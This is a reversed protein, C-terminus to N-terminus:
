GGVYSVRANRRQISQLARPLLEMLREELRDGAADVEPASAGNINIPITITITDGGTSISSSVSQPDGVQPSNVIEPLATGQGLLSSIPAIADKAFSMIAEIPQAQAITPLVGSAQTEVPTAVKPAITPTLTAAKSTDAAIASVPMVASRMTSLIPRADMGAAMNGFIAQGSHGLGRLPSRSWKPESGPLVSRLASAVQGVAAMAAGMMSMIGSILNQILAAGASFMQGAIGMVSAVMASGASQIAGVAQGAGGQIAGVVGSIGGQAAAVISAWIGSFFGVLGSWAAQIGAIAAMMGAQLMMGLNMVAMQIQMFATTFMLSLNMLGAQLGMWLNTFITSLFTAIPAIAAIIGSFIGTFLGSLGAFTSMIANRITLFAIKINLGMNVFFMQISTIWSSITAGVADFMAGINQPLHVVAGVAAAAMQGLSQGLSRAGGAAEQSQGFFSSLWSGIMQFTTAIQEGAWQFLPALESIIPQLGQMFGDAFGSFFAKISAWNKYILFAGAAVVAIGAIIPGFGIAAIASGIGTVAAGVQGLVAPIQGVAALAQLGKLFAFATKLAAFAKVVSGIAMALPGIAAVVLAIAVGIQTIGPHAAAFNAIGQIVPQLGKAIGNLAPLIASGMNIAMEMLNNKLLQFQNATTAARNEFEKLMGGAPIKGLAEFSKSLQTTDAALQSIIASDSGTGFMEAIAKTRTSADLKNLRGFFDQLAGGADQRIATEMQQASLGIRQLGQQFKATGGTANQLAPLMSNIATGVVEPPRGLNLMATAFAAAENSALGFNRTSGGIRTMANTIDAASTAGSDALYNITDGLTTLGQIDMKGSADMYGFVNSLRAISDGAQEASMDFATGMQAVLRTFDAMQNRQVGLMGASAAIGALGEASYPLTRSMSLIQQAMANADETGRELGFAKNVDAMASEFQVASHAMLGLGAVIPLTVNRTMAAGFNSVRDGMNRMGQAQQQLKAVSQAVDAIAATAENIASIRIALEMASM